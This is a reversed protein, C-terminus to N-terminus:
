RRSEQTAQEVGAALSTKFVDLAHEKQAEFAPRMFPKPQMRSTGFELFRWYFPDGEIDTRGGFEKKLIRLVKKVKRTLRIPRVGVVYKATNKDPGSRKMVAIHDRLNGTKVPARTKADDRFVAAATSTAKSLTKKAINEGFSKLAEGLERLGKVEEL